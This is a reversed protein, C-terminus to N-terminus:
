KPSHVVDAKVLMDWIQSLLTHLRSDEVGLRSSHQLAKRFLHPSRKSFRDKIQLFALLQRHRERAPHGAYRQANLLQPHFIPRASIPSKAECLYNFGNENEMSELLLGGARRRM